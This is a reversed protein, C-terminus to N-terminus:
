CAHYTSREFGGIIAQVIVCRVHATEIANGIYVTGNQHTGTHNQVCFLLNLKNFSNNQIFYLVLRTTYYCYVVGFTNTTNFERPSNAVYGLGPRVLVIQLSRNECCNNRQVKTNLTGNM